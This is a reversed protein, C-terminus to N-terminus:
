VISRASDIQETIIVSEIHHSHLWRVRAEAKAFTSFVGEVPQSTSTVVYITM